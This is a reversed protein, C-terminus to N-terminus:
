CTPDLSIELGGPNLRTDPEVCTFRDFLVPIEEPGGDLEGGPDTVGRGRSGYVGCGDDLIQGRAVVELPREDVGELGLSEAVVDGEVGEHLPWRRLDPRRACFGVCRPVGGASWSLVGTPSPVCLAGKPSAVIPEGHTTEIGSPWLM